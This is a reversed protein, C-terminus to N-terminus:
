STPAFLFGMDDLFCADRLYRHIRGYAEEAVARCRDPQSLATRVVEELDSFDWAVPLYTVGAEFLDPLTDLHSMDQKILVAGAQFAEIDRWCLEGFGFPSFCLRSRELESMFAALDLKGPPSLRLGDMETVAQHATERMVKYWPGGRTGLRSQLDIDRPGDPPSPRDAFAQLFRPATFFGPGLRLRDLLGPPVQWDVPDGADIGYLDSYYETLNTDGRFARLYTRSDRFLSKKVYHSVYPAM